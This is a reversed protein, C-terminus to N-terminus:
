FLYSYSLGFTHRFQEVGRQSKIHYYDISYNLSINNKPNLNKGLSISNKIRFFDAISLIKQSEFISSRKSPDESINRSLKESGFAPQQVASIFPVSLLNSLSFMSPKSKPALIVKISASLSTASEFAENNNVFAQYKRSSYLFNLSGGGYVKLASKNALAGLKYLNSYNIYFNMQTLQYQFQNKLIGKSFSMELDHLARRKKYSIISSAGLQNGSYPLSSFNNDVVSNRSALGQFSVNWKNLSDANKQSKAEQM